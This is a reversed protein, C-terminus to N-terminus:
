RWSARHSFCNWRVVLMVFGLRPETSWCTSVVPLLNALRGASRFERFEVAQNVLANAEADDAGERGVIREAEVVELADEFGGVAIEANVGAFELFRLVDGADLKKLPADRAGFVAQGGGAAAGEGLVEVLHLFPNADGAFFLSKARSTVFDM